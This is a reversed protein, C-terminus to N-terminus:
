KPELTVAKSKTTQYIIKEKMEKNKDANPPATITNVNIKKNNLPNSKHDSFSPETTTKDKNQTASSKKPAGQAFLSISIVLSLLTLVSRTFYKNKKNEM